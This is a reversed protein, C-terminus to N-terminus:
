CYDGYDEYQHSIALGSGELLHEGPSPYTPLEGKQDVSGM